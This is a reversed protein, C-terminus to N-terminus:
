ALADKNRRKEMEVAKLETDSILKKDYLIHMSELLPRGKTHVAKEIHQAWKKQDMLLLEERLDSDFVLWERAAARKGDVTRILRQHMIMRISSLFAAAKASREEASFVNVMRNPTSSVSYTHVTAYVLTGIEAQEIAGAITEPDRIEGYLAVDPARRTTNMPALEFSRIHAGIESQIIVGGKQCDPDENLQMLNFEIPSEFTVIHRNDNEMMHRIMAALSTSKGSGMVGTVLVLGNRPAMHDIVDQEMSLWELRPVDKPIARIVISASTGGGLDRCGTINVRFMHETFRDNPDKVSYSTDLFEGSIVRTWANGSGQSIHMVVPLIMSDHLCNDSSIFTWNGQLRARLRTSPAICIDSAKNETMWLLLRDLDSKM